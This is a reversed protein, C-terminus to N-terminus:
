LSTIDDGYGIKEGGNIVVNARKMVSTYKNKGEMYCAESMKYWKSAYPYEKEQALWLFVIIYEQGYHQQAVDTYFAAQMDYKMSRVKYPFDRPSASQCTKYDTIYVTKGIVKVYDLRAKVPTELKMFGYGYGPFVTEFEDLTITLEADGGTLYGDFKKPNAKKTAAKMDKLKQMDVTSITHENESEFKDKQERFEKTRRYGADVEGDKMYKERHKPDIPTYEPIEKVKTKFLEPELISMHALTGFKFVEELKPDTPLSIHLDSKEYINKLMSSWVRSPMKRYETDAINLIM